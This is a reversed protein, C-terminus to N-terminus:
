FGNPVRFRKGLLITLDVLRTSDPAEIVEADGLAEVARGVGTTDRRRILVQNRERGRLASDANALDVVDLGARRLLLMGARGAGVVGGSNLVEVLVRRPLPEWTRPLVVEDPVPRPVLLSGAAVAMLTVVLVGVVWWSRPIIV